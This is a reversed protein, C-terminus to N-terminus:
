RITKCAGKHKTINPNIKVVIPDFIKMGVIIIITHKLQV